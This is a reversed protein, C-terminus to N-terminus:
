LSNGRKLMSRTNGYSLEISLGDFYHIGGMLFRKPTSDENRQGVAQNNLLTFLILVNLYLRM